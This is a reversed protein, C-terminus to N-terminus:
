MMGRNWVVETVRHNATERAIMHIGKIKEKQSKRFWYSLKQCDFNRRGGGGGRGGRCYVDRALNGLQSERLEAADNSRRM